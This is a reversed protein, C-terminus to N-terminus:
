FNLRGTVQVIRGSAVGAFAGFPSTPPSVTSQVSGFGPAALDNVPNAFNPHNLVNFATAGLGLRVRETIKFNKSLTLDTDFFNPGRFQNRRQNVDFGISPDTAFDSFNSLSLCGPATQSGPAGCSMSGGNVNALIAAGYNPVTGSL